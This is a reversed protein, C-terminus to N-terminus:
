VKRCHLPQRQRPLAEGAEVEAEGAVRQRMAQSWRHSQCHTGPTWRRAEVAWMGHKGARQCTWAQLRKCPIHFLPKHLGDGAGLRACASTYPVAAPLWVMLQWCLRRRYLHLHLHLHLRLRLRQHLCCCAALVM